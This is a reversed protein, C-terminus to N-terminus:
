LLVDTQIGTHPGNPLFGEILHTAAFIRPNSVVPTEAAGTEANLHDNNWKSEVPCM